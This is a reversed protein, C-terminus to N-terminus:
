KARSADLEAKLQQAWRTLVVSAAARNSVSTVWQFTSSPGTRQHDYVVALLTGTVADNVQLALSMSGADMVYTRSRGAGPTDPANIVLNVINPTVHLVGDSAETVVPYGGDGLVKTFVSKALDAMDTRIKTVQSSSLGSKGYNRPNWSKSFEVGPEGIMVKSYASLDVDPRRHLQDVTKSDVRELGPFPSDPSDAAAVSPGGSAVFLVAAVAAGAQFSRRSFRPSMGNDM